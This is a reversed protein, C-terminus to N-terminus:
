LQPQPEGPCVVVEFDYSGLHKISVGPWGIVVPDVSTLDIPAYGAFRAWMAYLSVGKLAMGGAIMAFCSGVYRDHAPDDNHIVSGPLSHELRTHFQRGLDVLGPATRVWDWYRLAHFSAGVSEGGRSFVDDRRFQEVFGLGRFPRSRPNDDPSVTLIEMCDTRTFMWQAAEIAARYAHRGWGEPLFMTHLQYIAPQQRVFIFGGYETALAYTTPDDLAKTLDFRDCGDFAILPFVRPDNAVGNLHRPDAQRELM